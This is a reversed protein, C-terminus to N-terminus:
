FGEHIESKVLPYWKGEVQIEYGGSPKFRTRPMTAASRENYAKIEGDVLYRHKILYTFKKTCDCPQLEDKKVGM